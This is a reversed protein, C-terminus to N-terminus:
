KSTIFYLLNLMSKTCIRSVKKIKDPKSSRNNLSATDCSKKSNKKNIWGPNSIRENARKKASFNAFSHNAWFFSHNVWESMKPSSGSHNVWSQENGRLSKSVHRMQNSCFSRNAWMGWVLHALTLLYSVDSVLFSSILSFSHNVWKEIVFNKKITYFCALFLIKSKKLWFHKSRIVWKRQAVQAFQEPDRMQRSCCSRNAWPRENGRLSSHSESVTVWKRQAVQASREFNSM